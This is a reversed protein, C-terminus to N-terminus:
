QPFINHEYLFAGVFLLAIGICLCGSLIGELQMKKDPPWFMRIDPRYKKRSMQMSYVFSRRWQVAIVIYCIGYILFMSVWGTLAIFATTLSPEAFRMHIFM